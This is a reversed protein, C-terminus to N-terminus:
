ATLADRRRQSVASMIDFKDISTGPCTKLTQPVERHFLLAQVPLRFQRQVTDIVAVVAALQVGELRDNGEDFNGVTEFMFVNANMNCGISAPTKNWDRGSWIIGDPAISVHQAIDEFNRDRTHYTWMGDVSEAGKWDAHSPFWTHHMDVRFVPRAWPFAAVENAFEDITMARFPPPM